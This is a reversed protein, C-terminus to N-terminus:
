EFLGFALKRSEDEPIKLMDVIATGSGQGIVPHDCGVRLVGSSGRSRPFGKLNSPYM